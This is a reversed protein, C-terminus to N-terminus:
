VDKRKIGIIEYIVLAIAGFTISLDAVNLIGTRLSGIGFNLFDIVSFRNLLRDVLNGIGGSIISILIVIRIKDKEIFLCYILVSLCIAIPIYLLLIYKFVEPWGRGLSLFAGTNETYEIVIIRNLLEIPNKDKMFKIALLKTIRDAVINIAAVFVCLLIQKKRDANGL